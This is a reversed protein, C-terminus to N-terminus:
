AGVLDYFHFSHEQMKHMKNKNNHPRVAWFDDKLKKGVVVCYNKAKCRWVQGTKIISKQTRM